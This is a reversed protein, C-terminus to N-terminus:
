EEVCEKVFQKILKNLERNREAPDKRSSVIKKAAAEYKSIVKSGDINGFARYGTVIVANGVDYIDANWGYTGDTYAYPDKGRLLTQAACYPLKIINQNTAKIFKQTTKTKAM